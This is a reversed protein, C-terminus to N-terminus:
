TFHYAFTSKPFYFQSSMYYCLFLYFLYFLSLIPPLSFILFSYFLLNLHCLCLLDLLIFGLSFLVDECLIAELSLLFRHAFIGSLPIHEFRLVIRSCLTFAVILHVRFRLIGAVVLIQLPIGECAAHLLGNLGSALFDIILNYCCCLFLLNQDTWYKGSSNVAKSQRHYDM